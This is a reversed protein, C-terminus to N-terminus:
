PWHKSIQPRLWANIRISWPGDMYVSVCWPFNQFGCFSSFFLFLIFRADVLCFCALAHTCNHHFFFRSCFVAFASSFFFFSYFIVQTFFLVSYSFGRMAVRTCVGMSLSALNAFHLAWVLWCNWRFACYWFRIKCELLLKWSKSGLCSFASSAIHPWPRVPLCDSSISCSFLFILRALTLATPSMFWLGSLM